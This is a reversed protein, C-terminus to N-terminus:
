RVAAYQKAHEYISYALTDVRGHIWPPLNPDDIALERPQPSGAILELTHATVEVVVTDDTIPRVAVVLQVNVDGGGANVWEGTASQSRSIRGGEPTYWQPDTVFKLADVAMGSPSIKYDLQAVQLAVDLMSKGPLKYVTTKATKVQRTSPGCGVLAIVMLLASFVQM